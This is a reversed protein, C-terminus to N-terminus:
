LGPDTRLDRLRGDPIQLQGVFSPREDDAFLAFRRQTDTVDAHLRVRSGHPVPGKIWADLRLPGDHSELPPLKALCEGLVRPPHYLGRRFGFRRAYWDWFHIGNYDGTFRGFQWHGADAMTWEAQLPGSIAPSRIAPMSSEAEGFRGRAFFTVLSEWAIAGGARVRTHLDFEAGKPVARGRLVQTQIDLTEAIGVPRHQLFRNRTQLVGWIPVPFEPHTLIAMSLRFAFTHPYLIPLSPGLQASGTVVLFDDLQRRDARHGHWRATLAPTLDFRRRVPLMGRFMYPLASPRRRFDLCIAESM